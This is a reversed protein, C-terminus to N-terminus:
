FTFNEALQITYINGNQIIKSPIYIDQISTGNYATLTYTTENQTYTWDNFNFAFDCNIIINSKDYYQEYLEAYTALDVNSGIFDVVINNNNNDFIGTTDIYNSSTIIIHFESNPNRTNYDAFARRASSVNNDLTIEIKELSKHGEFLQDISNNQYNMGPMILLTKLTSSNYLLNNPDVFANNMIMAEVKQNDVSVINELVTYKEKQGIATSDTSYNLYLFKNLQYYQNGKAYSYNWDEGLVINLEEELYNIRQYGDPIGIVSIKDADIVESWEFSITYIQEQSNDDNKVSPKENIRVIWRNGKIDKLLKMNDNDSIQKWKLYKTINNSYLDQVDKEYYGDKKQIGCSTYNQYVGVDGLLCSLGSSVYSQKGYGFQPYKSLTNYLTVSNNITIDNSELNYRFKWLDSITYYVNYVNEGIDIMSWSDYKVFHENKILYYKMSDYNDNSSINVKNILLVYEYQTNNSVNYDYIMYKYDQEEQGTYVQNNDLDIDFIWQLYTDNIKRKYLSITQIDESYKTFDEKKCDVLEEQGTEINYVKKKFEISVCNYEDVNKLQLIIDNVFEQQYKALFLQRYHDVKGNQNECEFDIFYLMNNLLGQIGCALLNDYVYDTDLILRMDKDYIKYRYRKISTTSNKYLSAFYIDMLSVVGYDIIMTDRISTFKDKNMNWYYLNDNRLLNTKVKRYDSFVIDIDPMTRAYFYNAPISKTTDMYLNYIVGPFPTFNLPDSLYILWQSNDLKEISTDYFYYNNKLLYSYVVNSKQLYQPFFLSAYNYENTYFNVNPQIFIKNRTSNIIKIPSEILPANCSVGEEDVDESAPYLRTYSKIVETIDYSNSSGEIVDAKWIEYKDTDLIKRELGGAFVVEGTEYDYSTIKFLKCYTILNNDGDYIPDFATSRVQKGYLNINQVVTENWTIKSTAVENSYADIDSYFWGKVGSNTESIIKGSSNYVKSYQAVGQSNPKYYEKNDLIQNGMADKGIYEPFRVYINDVNLNSDKVAFFSNYTTENDTAYLYVDQGDNLNVDFPEKFEIKNYIKETGLNKTVWSIQRRKKYRLEYIYNNNEGQRKIDNYFKQNADIDVLTVTQNLLNYEDIKYSKNILNILESSSSLTDNMVYLYIDDKQELLNVNKNDLKLPYYHEKQLDAKTFSFSTISLNDQLYFDIYLVPYEFGNLEIETIPLMISTSTPVSTGSSKGSIYKKELIYQQYKKANNKERVTYGYTFLRNYVSNNSVKFNMTLTSFKQCPVCLSITGNYHSFGTLKNNNTCQFSSYPSLDILIGSNNINVHKYLLINQNFNNNKFLNLVCLSNYAKNTTYCNMMTDNRILISLKDKKPYIGYGSYSTYNRDIFNFNDYNFPAPFLIKARYQKNNYTVLIEDRLTHDRNYIKDDDIYLGEFSKTGNPNVIVSGLAKSREEEMKDSVWDLDERFPVEKGFFDTVVVIPTLSDVAFPYHVYDENITAMGYYGFDKDDQYKDQDSFRYCYDGLNANSVDIVFSNNEVTIITNNLIQWQINQRQVSEYYITDYESCSGAYPTIFLTANYGTSATIFFNINNFDKKENLIFKDGQIINEDYLINKQTYYMNNNLNYVGLTNTTIDTNNKTISTQSSNDVSLIGSDTYGYLLEERFLDSNSSNAEIEIYNDIDIDQENEKIKNSQLTSDYWLVSQTSGTLYGDSIFTSNDYKEDFYHEFLEVDWLYNCDNKLSIYFELKSIIDNRSMGELEKDIFDYLLKFDLNKLLLSFGNNMKEINVDKISFVFKQNKDNDKYQIILNYVYREIQINFLNYPCLVKRQQYNMLPNLYIFDINAIKLQGITTLEEDTMFITDSNDSFDINIKYPLIKFEANKGHSIPTKSVTGDDNEIEFQYLNDYLVTNDDPLYLKVKGGACMAGDTNVQCSFINGDLNELDVEQLYPYFGNPKYIAM